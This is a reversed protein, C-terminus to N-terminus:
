QNSEENANVKKAFEYGMRWAEELDPHDHPKDKFGFKYSRYGDTFATGCIDANHNWIHHSLNDPSHTHSKMFSLIVTDDGIDRGMYGDLWMVRQATDVYPNATPHINNMRAIRGDSYPKTQVSPPRGSGAKALAAIQSECGLMAVAILVFVAATMKM